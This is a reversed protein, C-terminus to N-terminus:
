VLINPMSDLAKRKTETDIHTYRQSVVASEHGIIDRAIVDSVGANKLLSTATHRLCHFSLEAVKHRVHRGRGSGREPRQKALGASVLIRYFEKSLDGNFYSTEYRQYARPFLPQNPNDNVTLKEFHQLLPRAIPIDIARDTKQSALNMVGNQLDVNTWTLRAIDGLRLGTYLGTLIMGRWEDDAVHLIRKLEDLTFPRRSSRGAKLLDVRKAENREVFGDKVAQNLAARLIKLAVNVTNASARKAVDSRFGSIEKQTLHSLDSAAKTGLYELFQDVVVGYRIVTKEGAEIEKRKVWSEFFDKVTSSPLKDRNGAAYIDAIVKRAQSETLQGARAQRAADEFQTAIRQAFRKAERADLGGKRGPEKSLTLKAGFNQDLLRALDDVDSMRVGAIPVRTSRQTRTGDADTFCAIWYPSKPLRRLSAM